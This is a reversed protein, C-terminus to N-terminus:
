MNILTFLVSLFGSGLMAVLALIIFFKFGKKQKNPKNSSSM